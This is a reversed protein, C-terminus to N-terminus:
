LPHNAAQTSQAISATNGAVLQGKYRIVDELLTQSTEVLREAQYSNLTEIVWILSDEIDHFDTVLGILGDQSTIPRNDSM